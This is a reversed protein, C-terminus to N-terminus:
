TRIAHGTKAHRPRGRDSGADKLDGFRRSHALWIDGSRFAERLHFLVAVEWLRQGDGEDANLHRQWKSGRRLFTLPLTVITEARAIIGAAELM